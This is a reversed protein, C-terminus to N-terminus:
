TGSLLHTVICHLASAEGGKAARFDRFKLLSEVSFGHVQPGGTSSEIGHNLFNGVRLGTAMIQRLAYSTRIQECAKRLLRIRSMLSSHLIPMKKSFLMTRVRMKLRPLRVLPLLQREVDRLGEVSGDYSSLETCELLTPLLNDHVHELTEVNVPHGVRMCRLVEALEETPLTVQRLVIALNQARKPDILCVESARGRGGSSKPMALGAETASDRRERPEAKPAARFLRELQEKNLPEDVEAM